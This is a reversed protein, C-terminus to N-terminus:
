RTLLVQQECILEKWGNEKLFQRSLRTKGQLPMGADDLLVLSKPGLKDYAETIEYLQHEQCPAIIHGYELEVESDTLQKAKTVCDDGKGFREWIWGIPYDLSDLYLLDINEPYDQLANLSDDLVYDISDAFEETIAKCVLMAKESNDITTLRGGFEQCYRGFIVTSMGGGWDEELRVCGTEVINKGSREHLLKLAKSFTPYRSASNKRNRYLWKYCDSTLFDTEM